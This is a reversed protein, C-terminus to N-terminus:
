AYGFVLRRWTGPRESLAVFLISPGHAVSKSQDDFTQDGYQQQQRIPKRAQSSLLRSSASLPRASGELPVIESNIVAVSIRRRAIRRRFSSPARGRVEKFGSHRRRAPIM